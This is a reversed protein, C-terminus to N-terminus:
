KTLDKTWDPPSVQPATEKGDYIRGQWDADTLRTTLPATFEYYSYTYGRTLRAGGKDKVAVYIFSPTGVAEYLIQQKKADTHVDAILGTRTDKVTLVENWSPWLIDPFNLGVYTRLTEYDDDSIAVDALEKEAISRFFILAKDFSAFKEKIEDQILGRNSLGESTMKNLAILRNIFTLDPEVYGKPVPPPTPMDGRGGGLEAYSQKAYLITDHRLETWSGLTTLLSKKNWLENQMFAPYGAGYKQYLPLLNYLWSWYINQNWTATDFKSFIGKLQTINKAIVKGSDPANQVIWNNLLDDATKSGLVSSVMLATPTSPLKQGSEKDPQEDGQTLKTLIFSDPIFRQGMFRFGKTSALLDDKSPAKNPDFAFIGSLILPGQLKKAENQFQALRSDDAFQNGSSGYIQTILKQYDYITLDDSKGVFFVSPLYIDEWTKMVGSLNGMQWAMLLADRTLDASKVEFGHRGYWMMARFYSRLISNKAYHSRPKYQSYDELEQEKEDTKLKGYLPSPVFGEAKTVLNLEDGALAYIEAPVKDKYKGLGLLINEPSDATSDDAAQKAEDQPNNFYGTPSIKAADLISAPVLYFTIIRGWSDKVKRDKESSYRKLSDDLLGATLQSLKPFLSKEEISQWTRDILVHYTHLLLDSTIFVANEPKRLEKAYDGQLKVYLDVMEDSSGSHRDVGEDPNAKDPTRVSMMFGSSAFVDKQTSTFQIKADNEVEKLNVLEDANIRYAPIVPTVAPLEEAYKAFQAETQNFQPAQSSLAAKNITVPKSERSKGTKISFYLAGSFVILLLVPVFLIIPFVPLGKNQSISKNSTDIQSSPNVSKAEM